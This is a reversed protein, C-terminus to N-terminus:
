ASPACRRCHHWSADPPQSAESVLRWGPKHAFRWGCRSQWSAAPASLDCALVHVVGRPEHFVLKYSTDAATQLKGVTDVLLQLKHGVTEQVIRTVEAETCQQPGNGAPTPLLHGELLGRDRMAKRRSKALDSVHAEGLYRVVTDSSWRGFTRIKEVDFGLNGLWQAGSVRLSHGGFRKQGLVDLLPLGLRVAIQEITGVMAAKTVTDGAEDPFLPLVQSLPDTPEIGLSAHVIELHAAAAHFVCDGCPLAPDLCTCGWVRTCGVATPDTKSVPLDLMVRSHKRDLRLHNLRAYAVEIERLLFSSGLFVAGQPNIPGGAVLAGTEMKLKAVEEVDLPASQRPPGQGRTVSRQGQRAEQEHRETWCHGARVHEQKAASVYNAFSRYGQAKMLCGVFGIDEPEVPVLPTPSGHWRELFRGWTNLLSARPAASTTAYKDLEYAALFGSKAEETDDEAHFASGRSRPRVVPLARGSRPTGPVPPTVAARVSCSPATGSSASPARAPEGGGAPVSRGDQPFPGRVDVAMPAPQTATPAARAAPQEGSLRARARQLEDFDLMPLTNAARKRKPGM